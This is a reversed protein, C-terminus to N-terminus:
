NKLKYYILRAEQNTLGPKDETQEPAEKKPFEAVLDDMSRRVADPNSPIGVISVELLEMRDFYLVDPDEGREKEGWHAEKPVFGVSVSRLTGHEVKRRIKDAKPNVEAPEFNPRGVLRGEEVRVDEWTGLYDDPDTSRTDHQYAMVPNRQFASLDWGSQRLVTGHRDVSETSMVFEIKGDEISRIEAPLNHKM